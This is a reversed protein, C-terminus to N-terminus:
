RPWCRTTSRRCRAVRRTARTWASAPVVLCASAPSRVRARCSGPPPTRPTSGCRSPTAARRTSTRSGRCRGARSRGAAAGARPRLGRVMETVPHEVQIRTNMEIFSFDRREADYLFEVTGAGRYRVAEALRVAADTMAREVDDAAPRARPGGRRGEPPPAAPLLRARGHPHTAATASCRCRSTGPGRCSGSSTCGPRRRVGSAGRGAGRAAPRAARRRLGRRPYRPRWRRRRGQHGVPYGVEAAVRQAAALDAVSGDSGAITPVGAQQASARARAKDGMLRIAEPSPGVWTM